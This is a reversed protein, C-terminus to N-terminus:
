ENEEEQEEHGCGCESNCGNMEINPNWTPCKSKDCSGDYFSGCVKCEEM